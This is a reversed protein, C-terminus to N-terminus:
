ETSVEQGGDLAATMTHWALTACKVRVPYQKVGALVQLRDLDDQLEPPIRGVVDDKGAAMEHFCEFLQRAQTETKLEEITRAPAIQALAAAPGLALMVTAVLCARPFTFM